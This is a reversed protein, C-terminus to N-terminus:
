MKNHTLNFCTTHLPENQNYRTSPQQTSSIGLQGIDSIM